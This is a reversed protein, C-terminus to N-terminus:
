LNSLFKKFREVNNLYEAALAENSSLKPPQQFDPDPHQDVYDQYIETGRDAMAKFEPQSLRPDMFSPTFVYYLMQHRPLGYLVSKAEKPNNNDWRKTRNLIQSLVSTMVTHSRNKPYNLSIAIVGIQDITAALNINNIKQSLAAEVPYKKEFLSQFEYFSKVLQYTHILIENPVLFTLSHINMDHQYRSGTATILIVKEFLFAHYFEENSFEHPVVKVRLFPRQDEPLSEIYKNQYYEFMAASWTIMRDQNPSWRSSYLGINNVEPELLRINADPDGQPDAYKQINPDLDAIDFTLGEPLTYFHSWDMDPTRQLVLRPGHPSPLQKVATVSAGLYDSNAGTNFTAPKFARACFIPDAKASISLLVTAVLYKM